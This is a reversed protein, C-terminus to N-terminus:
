YIAVLPLVFLWIDVLMGGVALLVALKTVIALRPSIEAEGWTEGPRPSALVFFIILISWYFVTFVTVGVYICVILWRM